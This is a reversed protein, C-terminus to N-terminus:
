EVWKGITLYQSIGSLGDTWREHGFVGFLHEQIQDYLETHYGWSLFDGEVSRRLLDQGPVADCEPADFNRSYDSVLRTFRAAAM